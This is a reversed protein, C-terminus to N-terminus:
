MHAEILGQNKKRWKHVKVRLSSENLYLVAAVEATTWGAFHAVKVVIALENSDLLRQLTVAAIAQNEVSHQSPLSEYLPEVPRKAVRRQVDVIVSKITRYIYALWEADAMEESLHPLARLWASHLIDEQSVSYDTPYLYRTYIKTTEYIYAMRADQNEHTSEM